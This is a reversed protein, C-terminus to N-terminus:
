VIFVKLNIEYKDLILNKKTRRKKQAQLFVGKGEGGSTGPVRYRTQVTGAATASLQGPLPGRGSRLRASVGDRTLECDHRILLRTGSTFRWRRRAACVGTDRKTQDRVKPRNSM